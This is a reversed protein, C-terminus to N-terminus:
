EERAMKYEEYCARAHEFDEHEMAEIIGELRNVRLRLDEIVDDIDEKDKPRSVDFMDMGHAVFAQQEKLKNEM